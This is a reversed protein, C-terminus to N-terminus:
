TAPWRAWRVLRRRCIHHVCWARAGYSPRAPRSCGPGCRCSTPSMSSRPRRCSPSSAALDDERAGDCRPLEPVVERPTLVCRRPGRRRDGPYVTRLSEHRDVVDILAAQLAAVDLEGRICGCRSRSTTPRRTPISGTSSGCASSRLRCRCGSRASSRAVLATRRAAGVNRSRGARGARRGHAGRVAAAGAGRHGARRRDPGRGQTAILSNGGLEFFNDDM